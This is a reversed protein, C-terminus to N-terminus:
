QPALDDPGYRVRLDNDVRVAGAEYANNEATQRESWSEVTGSLRVVGDDVTVEIADSSVFPSWFLEDRVDERIEWDGKAPVRTDPRGQWDFDSGHWDEDLYPDSVFVRVRDTVLLANDVARVGPVGAAAADAEAKQDWTDVTGSLAAIGNTVSVTINGEPLTPNRRIVERVHAEVMADAIPKEPRVRILNKVRYIGLTGHATAAAARRARLSDAKGSLTARGNEVRVLIDQGAVRPDRDLADRLAQEVEADPKTLKAYKRSRFRPDRVWESVELGEADVQEVGALWALSIARTREALSGVLGSLTARGEEVTVEILDDDVWVNWALIEKIEAAIEQDSRGKTTRVRLDDHLAKVGAVRKATQGALFKEPWSDVTGRLSVEQDKVVVDIQDRDIGPDLTLAEILEQRLAEDTGAPPAVAVRDIVARVGKVTEALRRAREKALLHAATGTLSVVGRDVTVDIVASSVGPERLLRETLALAIADDPPAEAASSCPTVLLLALTLPTAWLAPRTHRPPLPFPM